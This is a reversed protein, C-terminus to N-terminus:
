QKDTKAKAADAGGTGSETFTQDSVEGNGSVVTADRSPDHVEM